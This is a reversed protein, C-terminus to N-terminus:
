LQLLLHTIEKPSLIYRAAGAEIAVKPMGYVVCSEENQAIAIGGAQNIKSLGDAGDNGMGTLLIGMAHAGYYSAISSFTANISPMYIEKNSGASFQFRGSNDIILNANENPFYIAGALPTEGPCAVKIKIKCQGALWTVFSKQFDESMHQICVIPLLFDVPLRSFIPELTQPGGTSAGIAIIRANKYGKVDCVVRKDFTSIAKEESFTSRRVVIVKSVIRVKSILEEAIKQYEVNQLAKPKPMVDIAGAELLNFINDKNEPYVSISCVLIPLQFRRLIKRTLELGNMDPLHLDLCIVDPSLKPIIELAEKASQAKGIVKIDATTSLIQEFMKLALLSDDVLLVKIM